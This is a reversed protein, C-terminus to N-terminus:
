NGEFRAPRKELFANIGELRDRTQYISTVIFAEYEIASGQDMQMGAYVARKMLKHSLPARTAYHGVLDKAAQLAQGKPVLRNILGIRQAHAADIPDGSFLMELANSVGVIRPLRQTGGSGPVTGIKSSTIGFSSGEGAIRLDCALTLEFGGTLCFGEIAAIVPKSLEELTRHFRRWLAMYDVATAPASMLGPAERLDAGASFYREGGTIIVGRIEPDSDIQALRDMIQRMMAASLANRQEPRNFRIILAAGEREIVVHEQSM